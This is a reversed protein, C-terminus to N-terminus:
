AATAGNEKQKQLWSAKKGWLLLWTLAYVSGTAWWGTSILLGLHMAFFPTKWRRRKGSDKKFFEKDPLFVAIMGFIALFWTGWVAVRQLEVVGYWHGAVLGGSLLIYTALFSIVDKM